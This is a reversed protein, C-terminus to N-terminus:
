DVKKLLAIYSTGINGGFGENLSPIIYCTKEIDPEKDDVPCVVNFPIRNRIDVVKFGLGIAYKVVDECEAKSLTCTIYLLEGNESLLEYINKIIMKQLEAYKETKKINLMVEKRRKYILNLSSCPADFLVADYKFTKPFREGKYQTIIVNPLCYRQINNKLRRLRVRNPENAIVVGDKYLNCLLFTKGGPAASIDLIVRRSNLSGGWIYLPTISVLDMIYYLGYKYLITGGIEYNNTILYPIKPHPIYKTDIDMLKLLQHIIGPNIGVYTNPIVAKIPRQLAISLYRKLDIDINIVNDLLDCIGNLSSVMNLM